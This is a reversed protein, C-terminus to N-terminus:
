ENSSIHKLLRDLKAINQHINTWQIIFNDNQHTFYALFAHITKSNKYNSAAVKPVTVSM